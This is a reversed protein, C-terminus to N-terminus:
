AAAVERLLWAPGRFDQERSSWDRARWGAVSPFTVFVVHCCCSGSDDDYAATEGAEGGDDLDGLRASVDVEEGDDGDLARVGDAGLAADVGGLVELALAVIDELVEVVGDVAAVEEGVLGGDLLHGRLAGGDDVQEVAHAHGEVAGGFAQEVEATEATGEVVAGGEGSGGCALLKEVREVLLNAAVLGLALDLLILAPLEEGGHEVGLAGAASDGCHVEAGHLKAGEGGVGDDDARAAVSGDEAFRRVGHHAGAGRLRGEVLLAGVVGVALEDLNVGGRDRAFILETQHRLRGAAFATADPNGFVLVVFAGGLRDGFGIAPVKELLPVGLVAVEDWAVDGGAGDELDDVLVAHSDVTLGHDVEVDGVERGFPLVLEFANELDVLLEDTVVRAFNGHLDEGAHVVGHAAQPNVEVLLGIDGADEGRALGVIGDVSGVPESGVREEGADVSTEDGARLGHLIGLRECRWLAVAAVRGLQLALLLVVVDKEVIGAGLVGELDPAFKALGHGLVGGDDPVVGTKFLGVGLDDLQLRTIAVDVQAVLALPGVGAEGKGALEVVHELEGANDNLSCTEAVFGASSVVLRVERLAVVFLEQLGGFGAEDVVRRFKLKLVYVDAM